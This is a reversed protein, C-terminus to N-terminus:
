RRRYRDNQESGDLTGFKEMNCEGIKKMEEQVNREEKFLECEGLIHARREDANGCPCRQTHEEEEERSSTYRKIRGPLDLDGVRFLVKQKNEYDM